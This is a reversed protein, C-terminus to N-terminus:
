SVRCTRWSGSVVFLERRLCCAEVCREGKTEWGCGLRGRGGMAMQAHESKQRMTHGHQGGVNWDDVEGHLGILRRRAWWLRKWWKELAWGREGAVDEGARCRWQLFGSHQM